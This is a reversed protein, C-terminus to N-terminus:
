RNLGGVSRRVVVAGVPARHRAYMESVWRPGPRDALSQVFEQGPEPIVTVTPYPFEPPLVLPYLLSAATLDAVTFSDGVLYGSPGLEAELRDLGQVALERSRAAAEPEIAMARRMARSMPGFGLRPIARALWPQGHAFLPVVVDPEDLLVHYVARRIHPGVEEDFFEELELARARQGPDAPYLTPNPWRQELAAIIATSDGISRGELTLVPTTSGGSLRRAVLIHLGPLLSRRVHDIRKHDLAWRVKENYHSIQLQWLVPLGNTVTV